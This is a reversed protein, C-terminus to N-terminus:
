KVEDDFHECLGV